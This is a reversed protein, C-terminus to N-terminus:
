TAHSNVYMGLMQGWSNLHVAESIGSKLIIFGMNGLYPEYSVPQYLNM